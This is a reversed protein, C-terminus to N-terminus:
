ALELSSDDADEGRYGYTPQPVAAVVGGPLWSRHRGASLPHM